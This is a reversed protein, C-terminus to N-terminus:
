HWFIISDYFWHDGNPDIINTVYRAFIMEGVVEKYNPLRKLKDWATCADMTMEYTIDCSRM